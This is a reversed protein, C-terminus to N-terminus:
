YHFLLSKLSSIHIILSSMKERKGKSLAALRKIFVHHRGTREPYWKWGESLFVKVPRGPIANMRQHDWMKGQCHDTALTKVRQESRILPTPLPISKSKTKLIGHFFYLMSYHPFYPSHIQLKWDTAKGEDSYKSNNIERQAWGSVSRYPLLYQWEIM